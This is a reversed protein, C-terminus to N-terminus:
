NQKQLSLSCTARPGQLLSRKPCFLLLLEKLYLAAQDNLAKNFLLIKYKVKSKVCLWHLSTLIFSIYDRTSTRTLVCASANQILQLFQNSSFFLLLLCCFYNKDLTAIDNSLTYELHKPYLLDSFNQGPKASSVELNNM